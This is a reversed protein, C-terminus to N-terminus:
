IKSIYDDIKSTHEQAIQYIEEVISNLSDEINKSTDFKYNITKLDISKINPYQNKTKNENHIAFTIPTEKNLLHNINGYLEYHLGSHAPNDWNERWIQIYQWKMSPSVYIQYSSDFKERIMEELKQTVIECQKHYNHEIQTIIEKHEIYFEIDKSLELENESMLYGEVHKIFDEMYPYHEKKQFQYISIQKLIQVLEGYTLYVFHKNKLKCPNYNPKLCIYKIPLHTHQKLDEEYKLSQDNNESADVKNEIVIWFSSFKLIIDLRSRKSIPEETNIYVSSTDDQNLQEVFDCTDIDSATHELIKQIIELCTHNPDLLFAVMRSLIVEDRNKKIINFFTNPIDKIKLRNIRQELKELDYNM